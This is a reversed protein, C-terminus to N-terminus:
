IQSFFLNECIVCELLINEAVFYICVLTLVSPVVLVTLKMDWLHPNILQLTAMNYRIPVLEKSNENAYLVCVSRVSLRM